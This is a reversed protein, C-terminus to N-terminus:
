NGAELAEIRATLADIQSKQSEILAISEQLAATLLPIVDTYNLGLKGQEFEVVAEPLITQFDQAILFARRVSEADTIFRGTVTRVQKIKEIGNEIPALDTKINEDSLNTWTGANLALKVGNSSGALITIPKSDARIRPDGNGDAEIGLGRATFSVDGSSSIRMKESGTIEWTFTGTSHSRLENSTGTGRVYIGSNGTGVDSLYLLGQNTELMANGAVSLKQSPSNTGIGVNGSSDVVLANSGVNAEDATLTVAGVSESLIGTTGDSAVISNGSSKLKLVSNNLVANSIAGGTINVDSRELIQSSPVTHGIIEIVDDNNITFSSTSIRIDTGNTATYDSDAMHVGRLIVSVNGITYNCYFTYYGSNTSTDAQSGLYSQHDIVSRTNTNRPSSGFYPM